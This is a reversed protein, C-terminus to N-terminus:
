LDEMFTDLGIQGYDNMGCGYLDGKETQFLTFTGGCTIKTVRKNKLATIEKPEMVKSSEMGVGPAFSDSSFGLGLQGYNSMGWGFITGDKSMVISHAEGCAAQIVFIGELLPIKQPSM